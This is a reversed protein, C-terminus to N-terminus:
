KTGSPRPRLRSGPGVHALLWVLCRQSMEIRLLAASKGDEGTGSHVADGVRDHEGTSKRKCHEADKDHLSERDHPPLRDPCASLVISTPRKLMVSTPRLAGPPHDLRGGGGM